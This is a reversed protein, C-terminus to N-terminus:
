QLYRIAVGVVVHDPTPLLSRKEWSTEVLAGMKLARDSVIVVADAGLPAAGKQLGAAIEDASADGEPEVYVEGLRAHPRMPEARLVEIIDPYTAPYAQVEPFRVTRVAVSSCGVTLLGLATCLMSLFLIVPKPRRKMSDAGIKRQNNM